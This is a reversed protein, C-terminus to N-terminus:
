AWVVPSQGGFTSPKRIWVPFEYVGNREYIRYCRGTERHQAYSGGYCEQDFVLRHGNKVLASAAVIMRKIDLVKFRMMREDGNYMMAKMEVTGKNEVKGNNATKFELQGEAPLKPFRSALEETCGSVSAGSDVLLNVRIYASLEKRDTEIGNIENVEENEFYFEPLESDESSEQM